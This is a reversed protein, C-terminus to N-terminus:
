VNLYNWISPAYAFVIPTLPMVALGIIMTWTKPESFYSITKIPVKIAEEKIHQFDVSVSMDGGIENM